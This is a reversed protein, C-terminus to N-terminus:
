KAPFGTETILASTEITAGANGTLTVAFRGPGQQRLAGVKGAGFGAASFLFEPRIVNGQQPGQGGGRPGQGGQGQGTGQGQSGQQAFKSGQQPGQGGGRPGQGGQGQGTGQGQSGQQAFKSIQDTPISMQGDTRGKEVGGQQFRLLVRSTQKVSAEMNEAYLDYTGPALVQGYSTKLKQNITVRGVKQPQGGAFLVAAALTVAAFGAIRLLPIASRM